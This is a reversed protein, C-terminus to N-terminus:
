VSPTTTDNIQISGTKNVLNYSLTAIRQGSDGGDQSAYTMVKSASNVINTRTATPNTWTYGSRVPSGNEWLTIVVNVPRVGVSGYWMARMDFTVETTTPYSVIFRARNFLVAEFGTGTNDGAWTLFDSVNTRQGWGLYSGLTDQGVNPSVIRTRTDLDRGDGFEYTIMLFDADFNFATDGARFVSEVRCGAEDVIVITHDVSTALGNLSLPSTCAGLSVGDLTCIATGVVGSFNIVVSGSGQATLDDIKLQCGNDPPPPRNVIPSDNEYFSKGYISSPFHKRLNLVRETASFNAM